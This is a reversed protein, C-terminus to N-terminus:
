INLVSDLAAVSELASGALYLSGSVIVRYKDQKLATKV